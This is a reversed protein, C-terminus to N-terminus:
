FRNDINQLVSSVPTCIYSVLWTAIAVPIDNGSFHWFSIIKSWYEERTESLISVKYKEEFVLNLKM